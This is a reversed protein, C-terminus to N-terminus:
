GPGVRPIDHHESLRALYANFDSVKERHTKAAMKAIARKEEAALREDYRREAETRKDHGGHPQVSADSRTSARADAQTGVSGVRFGAEDGTPQSTAAVASRKKKKVGGSAVLGGKLKLGGGITHAYPDSM